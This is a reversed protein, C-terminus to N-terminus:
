AAGRPHDTDHPLEAVIRFFPLQKKDLHRYKYEWAAAARVSRWRELERRANQFEARVALWAATPSVQGAAVAHILDCMQPEVRDIFDEAEGLAFGWEETMENFGELIKIERAM